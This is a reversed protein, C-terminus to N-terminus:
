ANSSPRSLPTGRTTMNGAAAHPVDALGSRASPPDGHAEPRGFSVVASADRVPIRLPVSCINFPAWRRECAAVVTRIVEEIKFPKLIYDFAGAKMAEIADEIRGFGTMIICVPPSPLRQAERLLDLGTPPASRERVSPELKMDAILVDIPQNILIERADGVSAAAQLGEAATLVVHLARDSSM